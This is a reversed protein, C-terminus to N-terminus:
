QQLVRLTLACLIAAVAVGVASLVAGNAGGFGHGVWLSAFVVFGAIWVWYFYQVCEFARGRRPRGGVFSVVYGTSSFLLFGVLFAPVALILVRPLRENTLHGFVVLAILLALFV